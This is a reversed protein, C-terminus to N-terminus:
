FWKAFPQLGQQSRKPSIETLTEGDTIYLRAIGDADRKGHFENIDDKKLYICVEGVEIGDTLPDYIKASIPLNANIGKTQWIGLVYEMESITTDAIEQAQDLNIVDVTKSAM